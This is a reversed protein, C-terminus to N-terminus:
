MNHACQLSSCHIYHWLLTKLVRQLKLSSILCETYSHSSEINFGCDGSVEPYEMGEFSTEERGEAQVTSMICCLSPPIQLVTNLMFAYTEPPM